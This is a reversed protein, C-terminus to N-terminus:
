PRLMFDVVRGRLHASAGGASSATHLMGIGAAFLIASRLDAEEPELGYDIFARRVASRVRADSRQVSELVADDTLAWVRMARELAWQDPRVLTDMMMALRRRPAVDHMNEFRRRREDHLSGWAAAVAARYAQMDTFHWYFSGKTVELRDCLPGIRLADPGGEALLAFGARIWDDATLRRGSGRPPTMSPLM